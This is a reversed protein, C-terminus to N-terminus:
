TKANDAMLGKLKRLTRHHRALVTGLPQDLTEAIQAFGLEATYRLHLLQQESENLQAVAAHLVENQEDREMAADVPSEDSVGLAEPPTGALDVPIAQRRRRRMEDRLRNLAIRFLWAEFRGQERYRDLRRVVQVFTAQTIEEALERDGCQRFILGFVRPSFSEVIQRWASANGGAAAWLTPELSQDM